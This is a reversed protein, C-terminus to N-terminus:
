DGECTFILRLTKKKKKFYKKANAYISDDVEEHPLLTSLDKDVMNTIDEM